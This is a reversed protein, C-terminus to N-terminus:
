VRSGSVWVVQPRDAESFSQEEPRDLERCHLYFFRALGQPRLVYDEAGVAADTHQGGHNERCRMERCSWPGPSDEKPSEPSFFASCSLLDERWPEQYFFDVNNGPWCTRDCLASHESMVRAKYERIKDALVLVPPSM